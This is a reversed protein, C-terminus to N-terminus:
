CQQPHHEQDSCEDPEPQHIQGACRCRFCLSNVDLNWELLKRRWIERLGLHVTGPAALNVSTPGYDSFSALNDNQDTAAVSIINASPYSAPYHPINDNDSADNGAASVVVAPSAAIADEMAQDSVIGSWSNSIVSAGHADAYQIAAIANSNLGNGSSDFAKLAMVQVHWDVGAIGIGNNGVAGLIGACDTGHGYDDLPNNTGAIYNWGHSGDVPNTWINPSLDPLTYNVGTDIVAVIVTNSGTSIGWAPTANIDAGPTGPTNEVDQGTNHLAWQLSFGPDNPISAIQLPGTRLVPRAPKMGPLQFRM